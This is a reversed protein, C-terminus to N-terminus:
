KSRLLILICCIKISLQISLWINESYSALVLIKGHFTSCLQFLLHQAFSNMFVFSESTIKLSSQAEHTGFMIVIM